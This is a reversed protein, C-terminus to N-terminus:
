ILWCQHFQKDTSIPCRLKLRLLRELTSNTPVPSPFPVLRFFILWSGGPNCWESVAKSGAMAVTRHTYNRYLRNSIKPSCKPFSFHQGAKGRHSQSGYIQFHLPLQIPQPGEQHSSYRLSQSSCPLM